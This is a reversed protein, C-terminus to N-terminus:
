KEPPSVDNLLISPSTAGGNRAKSNTIAIAPSWDLWSNDPKAYLPFVTSAPAPPGPDDPTAFAIGGIILSKMNEASVNIGLLKLRVNIGGANWFKTDTRILPAFNTEILLHISVMRADDNLAFYSVAGVEIGRYYVPSGVSLTNIQPTTLVIEFKGNQDKDVPAEEM